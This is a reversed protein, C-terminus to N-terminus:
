APNGYGPVFSEIESIRFIDATQFLHSFDGKETGQLVFM